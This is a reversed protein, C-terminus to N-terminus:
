RMGRLFAITTAKDSFQGRIEDGNSYRVGVEFQTFPTEFRVVEFSEVLTIAETPSKAMGKPTVVRVSEIERM